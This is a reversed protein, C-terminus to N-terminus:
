FHLRRTLRETLDLEIEEYPLSDELISAIKEQDAADFYASVPPMLRKVPMLTLNLMGGDHIFSYSKFLELPYNKNAIRLGDASLEYELSRPTRRAFTGVIIGLLIIIVPPFFDKTMLYTIGSLAITLVILGVYWSPGQKHDIYESATWSISKSSGRQPSNLENDVAEALDAEAKKDGEPSYQWNSQNDDAM